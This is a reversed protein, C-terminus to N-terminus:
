ILPLESSDFLKTRIPDNGPAGYLNAKEKKKKNKAHIKKSYITELGQAFLLGPKREKNQNNPAKMARLLFACM